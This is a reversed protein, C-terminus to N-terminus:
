GEKEWGALKATEAKFDAPTRSDSVVPLIFGLLVFFSFLFPFFFFIFLLLPEILPALYLSVGKAGGGGEIKEREEM